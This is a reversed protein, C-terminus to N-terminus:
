LRIGPYLIQFEERSINNKCHKKFVELIKKDKDLSIFILKGSKLYFTLAKHKLTYEEDIYIVNNFEYVDTKGFRTVEFQKKDYKYSFTKPIFFFFIITLLIMVGFLVYDQTKFPWTKSGFLAYFISTIILSTIILGLRAKLVNVKLEEMCM